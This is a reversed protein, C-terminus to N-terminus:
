VNTEGGYPLTFSVQTGVDAESKIRLGYESGYRLTLRLHVNRLGISSNEDALNHLSLDLKELRERSMGVGDDIVDICVRDGDLKAYVQITIGGTKHELGHIVANEVLPQITLPPIEIHKISPDVYLTYELRDEYRFKQIDLYCNVIDMENALNTLRNGVELNRRMLKGLMRIIQAIEPDGNMHAKMRISELVNFLFHPNIQSAMMKFKIENQKLELINKQRNSEKIEEVLSSVSFVMSNFQRSLQGIEDNGDIELVVDLNGTAIKSIHKSLRLLRKTLIASVGYILAVGILLAIAIVTLALKNVYDTSELINEISFVSIIRLSNQSFEPTLPEILIRSAHGDIEMQFSGGSAAIVDETFEIDQLTLGIRNDMNAAVITNSEDVIMMEFSEQNLIANLLNMNVNVVLIGATNNQLFAVKRVLSLYKIQDREDELYYWNAKGNPSKMAKQYWNSKTIELGPQIFEWNDLMTPNEFYFRLNSIEKYLRLNEKFLNYNRYTSVVEYLSNYQKNSISQLRDDNAMRYSSDNAVSIIDTIRVKVRQVNILTQEIANDLAMSRMKNTLLLGVILVPIFVVAILSIILKTRLKLNNFSRIFL